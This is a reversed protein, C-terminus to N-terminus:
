VAIYILLFTFIRFIKIYRTPYMGSEQCQNSGHYPEEAIKYFTFNLYTKNFIRKSAKMDAIRESGTGAVKGHM